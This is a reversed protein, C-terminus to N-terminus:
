KATEKLADKIDQPLAGNFKSIASEISENFETNIKNFLKNFFQKKEKSYEKMDAFAKPGKDFYINAHKCATEVADMVTGVAESIAKRDANKVNVYADLMEETVLVGIANVYKKFERKNAM